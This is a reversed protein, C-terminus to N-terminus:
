SRTLKNLEKILLLMLTLFFLSFAGVITFNVGSNKNNVLVKNSNMFIVTNETYGLIENINQRARAIVLADNFALPFEPLDNPNNLIIRHISDLQNLKLDLYNGLRENGEFSRQRLKAFSEMNNLYSKIASLTLNFELTDSFTVVLEVCNNGFLKNRKIENEQNSFAIINIKKARNFPINLTKALVEYQGFKLMESLSSFNNQLLQPLVIESCVMTKYSYSQGMKKSSLYGGAGGILVVIAFLLFNKKCFLFVAIFLEKEQYNREEM